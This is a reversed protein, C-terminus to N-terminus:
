HFIIFNTLLSQSLLVKSEFEIGYLFAFTSIDDESETKMDWVVRGKIEILKEKTNSELISLQILKARPLFCGLEVKICIGFASIDVIEAKHVINQNVSVQTDFLEPKTITYRTARRKEPKLQGM